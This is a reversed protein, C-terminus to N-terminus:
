FVEQENVGKYFEQQGKTMLTNDPGDSVRSFMSEIIIGSALVCISILLIILISRLAMKRINIGKNKM